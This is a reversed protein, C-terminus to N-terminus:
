RMCLITIYITSTFSLSVRMGYQTWARLIAICLAIPLHEMRILLEIWVWSFNVIQKFARSISLKISPFNRYAVFVYFGDFYESFTVKNAFVWSVFFVVYKTLIVDEVSVRLKVSVM